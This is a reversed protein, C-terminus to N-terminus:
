KTGSFCLFGGSFCWFNSFFLKKKMRGTLGDCVRTVPTKKVGTQLWKLEGHKKNTCSKCLCFLGWLDM